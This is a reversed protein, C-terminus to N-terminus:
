HYNSNYTRYKIHSTQRQTNTGGGETNALAKRKSICM